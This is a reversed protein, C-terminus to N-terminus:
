NNRCFSEIGDSTLDLDARVQRLSDLCYYEVNGEWRSYVKVRAWTPGM